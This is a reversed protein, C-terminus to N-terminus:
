ATEIFGDEEVFLTVGEEWWFWWLRRYGRRSGVLDLGESVTQLAEEAAIDVGEGEEGGGRKQSERDVSTSPQSV